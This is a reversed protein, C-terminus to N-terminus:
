VDLFDKPNPVRKAKHRAYAERVRMRAPSAEARAEPSSAKLEREAKIESMRGKNVALLWQDYQKPLPVKIAGNAGPIVTFDHALLQEANALCFRKGVSSPTEFEPERRKGERILASANHDTLTSAQHKAIYGCSGASMPQILSRGKGWLKELEESSFNKFGKANTSHYVADAPYYGFIIGHYHPRQSEGSYHGISHIVVRIRYIRFLYERVRKAFDQYQKRSLSRNPPLEADTYTLTFFCNSTNHSAEHM